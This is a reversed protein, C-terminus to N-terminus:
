MNQKISSHIHLYPVPKNKQNNRLRFLSTM